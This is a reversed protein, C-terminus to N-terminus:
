QYFTNRYIGGLCVSADKRGSVQHIINLCAELIGAAWGVQSLLQCSMNVYLVLNETQSEIHVSEHEETYQNTSKMVDWVFNKFGLSRM